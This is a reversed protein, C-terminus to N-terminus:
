EKKQADIKGKIQELILKAEAVVKRGEEVEDVLAIVLPHGDSYMVRIDKIQQKSLKM